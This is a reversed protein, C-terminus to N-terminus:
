MGAARLLEVAQRPIYAKGTKPAFVTIGNMEVTKGDFSLLNTSCPLEAVKGAKKVMLIPSAANSNDIVAVAGIESVAAGAEVFLRNDAQDLDFGMARAAIYALDKNEVLGAPKGPGYAYLFLDEGVHGNTTWGVISRKSIIPGVVYNMAGSKAKQIDAVEQVTLDNVGYYEDMVQRISTEGQRGALVREIGEGTLTAKKLPEILTELKTSSYNPDRYAGISMGGTGHDAFVLVLTNGDKRAFDLATGVAAQFALTDSIVGIPDNAHAAWDVKSGEVFLFFGQPKQQLIEIAKATMEALTPEQPRLLPRDMDYAMADDAFLGWVKSGQFQKMDQRNEVLGYGRSKLVSLLNEGDTRTGGQDKPLLYQKGGAFVVDINEYVQQKGIEFYNSRDPWHASFGAPSAHQINCTVVLGTAKGALRAGELISAVPKYEMGAPTQPVGPVIVKPPLVSIFKDDTKHGTAFASAAPASDTIISDAGYTRVGGVTIADTPLAAGKYWRSLTTATANTGDTMLVIVNPAPTAQGPVSVSLLLCLSMVLVLTKGQWSKNQM